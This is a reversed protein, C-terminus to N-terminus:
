KNEQRLHAPTEGVSVGLPKAEAHRSHWDLLDQYADEHISYSKFIKDLDARLDDTM